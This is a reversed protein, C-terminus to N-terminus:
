VCGEFSGALFGMVRNFQSDRSGAELKGWAGGSSVLVIGLSPIMIMNNGGAGISMFADAPGDPWTTNDPHLRGRANFWWNFGYIGAGYRTFHDSGGGFSGIQLYDDTGGERTHPLDAPVQPKMYREFYERPLLQRGKWAGMNLWFLGIRAFDRVSAYLRPKDKRFHPHDQFQLPALRTDLVIQAPEQFIHSFLTLHYLQIAYDNYAWAEGPNESRAYASIMNALHFYEINRDKQKLDWGTKEISTHVDPLLEEHIAFFLFTSFLPKVSSKWDTKKEQEGWSKIVYGDAIILGQGELHSVISDLGSPDIGLSEPTKSEWITGPFV